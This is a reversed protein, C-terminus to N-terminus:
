QGVSAADSELTGEEPSIERIWINRWRIEGGHTQLQIPGKDFVPTRRTTDFYNEMVADEVVTEGNLEVTVRDGIMRIKFQNWEGFPRDMKKLPDKGPTGATNNWLGGSGLPKGISISRPDTETSDWIQVQPCGRLYIGSDAGPVTKYEIWLEFDRYEKDTTAYLGGGDNVLEGNEVTWHKALEKGADRGELPGTVSRKKWDAFQEPTMAWLKEPSQTNWGFWGSLDKGNFLPVFGGPPTPEAVLSTVGLALILLTSVTAHPHIMRTFFARHTGRDKM